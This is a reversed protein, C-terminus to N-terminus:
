GPKNESHNITVSYLVKGRRNETYGTIWKESVFYDLIKKIHNRLITKKKRLAEPTAAKVEMYEYITDYLITPSQQKRPGKMGQIRRALYAQLIIIEPTKNIPSNLMRIPMRGIQGKREAYEYFTPAKLIHLCEITEGNLTATVREAHLLNGDYVFSDIGDMKKEESADIQIRGYMFKSISESIAERHSQTIMADPNGTMTQYIMRTTIHYNDALYLSVIANYVERDYYTLETNTKITGKLEDFDIFARTTIKTKRFAKEKGEMAIDKWVSGTILNRFSVDTLKDIPSVFETPRVTAINPGLLDGGDEFAGKKILTSIIEWYAATGELAKPNAKEAARCEDMYAKYFALFPGRHAEITDAGADQLDNNEIYARIPFLFIHLDYKWLPDGDPFAESVMRSYPMIENLQKIANQVEASNFIAAAGKTQEKITDGLEAMRERFEELGQGMAADIAKQRAIARTEATGQTQEREGDL